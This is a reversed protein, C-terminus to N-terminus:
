KPDGNNNKCIISKEYNINKDLKINSLDCNYDAIEINNLDVVNIVFFGNEDTFTNEEESGVSKYTLPENNEDILRSYLVKYTYTKWELEIVNATYTTFEQTQDSVKKFLEKNEDNILKLYHKDYDMLPIFVSKEAIFEKTTNNTKLKYKKGIDKDEFNIIAGSKIYPKGSFVFSSPTIIVATNLKGYFYDNQSKTKNISQKQYVLSGGGYKDSNISNSFVIGSHDSNEYMNLTHGLNFNKFNNNKSVNINKRVGYRGSDFDIEYRNNTYGKSSYEFNIGISFDREDKQIYTDINLNSKSNLTLSKLASVKYKVSHGYNNEKSINYTISGSLTEDFIHYYNLDLNYQKNKNDNLASYSSSIKNNKETYYFSNVFESYDHGFYFSSQNSINGYEFLNSFGFINKNDDITFNFSSFNYDNVKKSLNMTSYFDDSVNSFPNFFGDFNDNLAVKKGASFDWMWDYSDPIQNNKVYTKYITKKAGLEDIIEIKLNSIGQPLDPVIVEQIGGNLTEQYLLIDKNFIKVFSRSNLNLSIPKIFDRRYNSRTKYYSGLEFGVIDNINRFYSKQKPTISGLKFINGSFEKEYNIFSFYPENKNFGYKFNARQAGYSLISNINLDSKLSDGDNTEQSINNVNYRIDNYLAISNKPEELISANNNNNTTLNPNVLIYIISKKPDYIFEIIEPILQKSCPIKSVCIYDVNSKKTNQLDSKISPIFEDKIKIIKQLENIFKDTKKIKIEKENYSVKINRIKKGNLEFDMYGSFVQSELELFEDPVNTDFKFDITEKAISSISISLLLLSLSLNKKFM